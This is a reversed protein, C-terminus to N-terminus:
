GRYPDSCMCPWSECAPCPDHDRIDEPFGDHEFNQRNVENWKFGGNEIKEKNVKLVEEPFTYKIADYKKAPEEAKIEWVSMRALKERPWDLMAKKLLGETNSIKVKLANLQESNFYTHPTPDPLQCFLDVNLVIHTTELVLWELYSPQYKYIEHLAIGKNKGFFMIDDPGLIELRRAM